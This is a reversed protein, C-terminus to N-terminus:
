VQEQPNRRSLHRSAQKGIAESLTKRVFSKLKDAMFHLSKAADILDIDCLLVDKKNAGAVM